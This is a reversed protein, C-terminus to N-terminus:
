TASSTTKAKPVTTSARRLLTWGQTLPPDVRKWEAPSLGNITDRIVPNEMDESDVYVFDLDHSALAQRAGVTPLEAFIPGWEVATCPDYGGVYHCGTHAYTALLHVDRGRFQDRTPYLREVMAKMPRGPRGTQPTEYGSSFHPPLLVVLAVAAVPIAARLRNLGPWRDAVAMACLGVVSLILVSLCYLYEPRPRQFFMVPVFTAALSALALWGWARPEIWSRWWRDRHRWLLVIGALLFGGLLLSGLVALSADTTVPVYDPNHGDGGSIRDFLMLQLGYPVLESNWGLQQAIAGPNAGIAQALTPRERGFDRRMLQGCDLWPSATFDDHRQQYGYAYSQCLNLTQKSEFQGWADHDHHRAVTFAMLATVALVPIAVAKVLRREPTPRGLRRARVEYAIWAGTWIVLAFAIETRLLVAVSLLLGFVTARMRLGRWSLAVLVAGLEPLLAFLHLEYLPDYNVPLVAWWVALVWAIGPSVFRRLVALVLLSAALAILVRHLITSAYPDDVVWLTSGWVANYLPSWLPSVELSHAWRSADSFYNATDGDSLDRYQWIGWLLKSQILFLSGYAFWASGAVRDLSQAVGAPLRAGGVSRM